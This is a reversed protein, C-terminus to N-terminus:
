MKQIKQFKPTLVEWLAAIAIKKNADCIMLMSADLIREKGDLTVFKEGDDANKVIIKGGEVFKADFTHLPQGLELMVFNSVDVVNNIPRIGM